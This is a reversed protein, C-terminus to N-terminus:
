AFNHLKYKTDNLTTQLVTQIKYRAHHWQHDWVCFQMWSHIPHWHPTTFLVTHLIAYHTNATDPGEDDCTREERQEYYSSVSTHNQIPLSTDCNVSHLSNFSLTPSQLSCTKLDRTIREKSVTKNNQVKLCIYTSKLKWVSSEALLRLMSIPKDYTGTM